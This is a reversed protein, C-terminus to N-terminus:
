LFRHAAMRKICKRIKMMVTVIAKTKPASGRKDINLRKEEETWWTNRERDLFYEKNDTSGPIGSKAEPHNKMVHEMYRKINWVESRREIPKSTQRIVEEQEEKEEYLFEQCNLCKFRYNIHQVNHLSNNRNNARTDLEDKLIRLEVCKTRDKIKGNKLYMGEKAKIERENAMKRRHETQRHGKNQNQKGVGEKKMENDRKQKKRSEQDQERNIEKTESM